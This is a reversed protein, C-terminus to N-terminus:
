QKKLFDAVNDLQPSDSVAKWDFKEDFPTLAKAPDFVRPDVPFAKYPTFDPENTFLDALDTATADYQNLYPMRFINWFTKFISGFSYHQHSVYNKKAYPSVVMLLSRHADIHDRGDQSDDETIVIAMNKWYPTSSLFEIMRGVALDNDSMYSERFPFGANPRDGAGHDNPIMITIIQPMTKGEGMWQENFEKKFVDVRFQDPIAMNYTPYLRSSNEYLPLSIPHNLLIKVGGYKLTSDEYAGALEVGFGFNHFSTKNRALHDWMSGAENYDEPYVAGSAGYLAGNGPAKSDRRMNRKGGYSATVSTEMWENPYTNALWRHGDASHDSDVYFNDSIAFRQALALHNPMVTIGSLSDTKANNAFTRNVGYRAMAGEGKGGKVQGFVEDYTRNEKSIFVIYKIPSEKQKGFLPIPNDNRANHAADNVKTFKFNYDLVQQTTQKLTEGTPIDWISVTGYMLNGVYGEDTSGKFTSGGNPGSGFGKASAVIVKKGDPSVALRSPFWGTPVHGKVEFTEADIVAVANIGSEAVFLTKKDPSLAIGFPIVGRFRNLRADPQLMINKIITDKELSIVSVCDNNGNSVFIYKDSAVLSNPSSGGVAPIGEIEAGVLFGTKIKKSVRPEGSVAVTWVSFAEPANPDGLGPVDLKDTKYGDRSEQTNFGSTPFDAATEKLRAPDLSRLPSYAYMGVNAVFVEKEDPSLTVGFPYRGTPINYRINKSDTDIIMLRFGIQDVAYLTKGDKTLTMDGIYGHMYDRDGVKIACNISDVKAGSQLDFKFIKNSEGGAVYVFRNDPTIALGMFVSELIGEDSQAGEPIQKVRPNDSFPEYIITISFPATGSNATVAIKGDPSLVLGYPHPATRLTKGYPKIIRGNPIITEGNPAIQCYRDGAPAQAIWLDSKEKPNCSFFLITLFCPILLIRNM